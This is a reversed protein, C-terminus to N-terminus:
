KTAVIPTHISKELVIRGLRVIVFKIMLPILDVLLKNVTINMIQKDTSIPRLTFFIGRM